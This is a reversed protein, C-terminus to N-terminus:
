EGKSKQKESVIRELNSYLKHFYETQYTLQILRM